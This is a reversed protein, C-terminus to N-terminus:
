GSKLRRNRYGSRFRGPRRTSFIVLADLQSGYRRIFFFLLVDTIFFIIACHLIWPFYQGVRMGLFYFSVKVTQGHRMGEVDVLPRNQYRCYSRTTYAVPHCPTHYQPTSYEYRMDEHRTKSKYDQEQLTHKTGRKEQYM